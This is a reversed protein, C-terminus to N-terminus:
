FPNKDHKQAILITHTEENGDSKSYRLRWAKKLVFGHSKLTNQITEDSHYWFYTRKGTSGSIFGSDSLNGPVFSLYIWGDPLIRKQLDEMLKLVDKESLYPLVFGAVVADFDERLSDLKRVDLVQTRAKPVVKQATRVMNPAVDTLVLQLDPRKDHLYKGIIGPGSGLELVKANKPLLTCLADYTGHYLDFDMFREKYADALHNWTHFTEKYPDM